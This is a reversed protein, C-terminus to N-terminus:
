TVHNYLHLQSVQLILIINKNYKTIDIFMKYSTM